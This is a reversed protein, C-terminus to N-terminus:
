KRSTCKWQLNKKFKKVYHKGYKYGKKIRWIKMKWDDGSFDEKIKKVRIVCALPFISLIVIFWLLIIKQYEILRAANEWYPYFIGSRHMVMNGPHLALSFIRKFNFRKTNDIIEKDPNQFGDKVLTNSFGPVPEPLVIEYGDIGKDKIESFAEYSLYIRGKDEDARNTYKDDERRIVGAIIYTKRNILVEMGSLNVSGYLKWAIEEDLIVRDKSLDSESIYSGNRLRLPHFFFYDGGVGLASAKVENHISSIEIDDEAFYSDVWLKEDERKLLSAESLKSKIKERFLKIDSRKLRADSPFFVSVQTFSEESQGQWREAVKQSILVESLSNFHLICFLSLIALSLSIILTINKKYLKFNVKM